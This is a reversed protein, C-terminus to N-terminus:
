AALREMKVVHEAAQAANPLQRAIVEDRDAMAEIYDMARRQVPHSREGVVLLEFRTPREDELLGITKPRHAVFRKLAQLEWMKGFARETSQAIGRESTTAQLFFCAFHQGLFDVVLQTADDGIKLPRRFRPALHKNRTNSRIVQRVRDVLGHRSTAAPIDYAGLLTHLASHRSLAERAAAPADKATFQTLRAINAGEFPAKWDEPAQDSRWHIALSECLKRAAAELAVGAPGFAHEAKAADIACQFTVTGDDLRLVVGACLREISSLKPSFEILTRWGAVRRARDDRHALPSAATPRPTPM